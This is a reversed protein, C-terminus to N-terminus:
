FADIVVDAAAAVVVVVVDVVNVADAADVAYDTKEKLIKRKWYSM